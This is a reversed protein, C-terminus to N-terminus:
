VLLASQACQMFSRITKNKCWEVFGNLALFSVIEDFEQVVSTSREIIMNQWLQLVTNCLQNSTEWIVGPIYLLPFLLYYAYYVLFLIPM